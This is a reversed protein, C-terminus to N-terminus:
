QPQFQLLVVLVGQHIGVHRGFPTVDVRHDRGRVGPALDGGGQSQELALDNRERGVLVAVDRESGEGPSMAMSAGTCADTGSILIKLAWGGALVDGCQDRHQGLGAATGRRDAQLLEVPASVRDCWPAARRPCRRIHRRLSSRTTALGDLTM